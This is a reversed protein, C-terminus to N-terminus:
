LFPDINDHQGLLMQAIEVESQKARARRFAAPIGRGRWERHVAEHPLRPQCCEDIYVTSLPGAVASITGTKGAYPGSVVTVLDGVRPKRDFLARLRNFM